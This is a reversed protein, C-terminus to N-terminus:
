ERKRMFDRKFVVSAMNHGSDIGLHKLVNAVCSSDDNFAVVAGAVAAVIHYRGSHKSKPCRAWMLHNLAECNNQTYGGLCGQMIDDNTLREYIPKLEDAIASPM